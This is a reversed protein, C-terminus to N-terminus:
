IKVFFGTRFWYYAIAMWLSVAVLNAFLLNLHSNSQQRWSFPFYNQLVESGVYVLISNMGPYKFPAGSWWSIVDIVFYFAALLVFGSGAMALIFSLSWLNKNIPIVGGNKQGECLVLSLGGLLLGWLLLRVLINYHSKYSVLIRGAQVGLFCIVISNLSGLAGEPDYPRRLHYTEKATPNQYLHNDTFLWRDIEGAAGGTCNYYRGGDSLGGPGLYGRPCPQPLHLLFTLVLWLFELVAVVVWQVSNATIDRFASLLRGRPILCDKNARSVESTILETLAVVFYSIAFRQLVGPIRWHSLTFGNNLFIGLCFLIVTRRLLQYLRSWLPDRRRGKYSFVISVGMIWVFWPFVLDAVTLGNWHSHNFFWYGGGGYNVFIMIILSFGRFTDLSALRRRAQPRSPEATGPKATQDAPGGLVGNNVSSDSNRNLPETEQPSVAGYESNVKRPNGLDRATVRDVRKIHLNHFCGRDKLVLWLVKGVAWALAVCLIAVAAYLIPLYVFYGSVMNSHEFTWNGNEPGLTLSYRSHETFQHHKRCYMTSNGDADTYNIYIEWGFSTDLIVSWDQGPYVEGLSYPACGYCNDSRQSIFVPRPLQNSINLQAQDIGLDPPSLCPQSSTQVHLDPPEDEGCRGYLCLRYYTDGSANSDLFLYEDLTTNV